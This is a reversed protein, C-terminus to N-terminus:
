FVREAWGLAGASVKVGPIQLLTEACAELTAGTTIVDDVLFLHQDTFREPNHLSFQGSVNLYRDYRSKRTQTETKGSRLLLDSCYPIEMAKSLGRAIQESQNYGRKRKKRPHLPVPIIVQPRKFRPTHSLQYGYTTGLDIGIRPQDQYKFRHMVRQYRSAQIFYFWAVVQVLDVRGWFLQEIPHNEILHSQTVPMEGLCTLCMTHEWPELRRDCAACLRPVLTEWVAKLDKIM